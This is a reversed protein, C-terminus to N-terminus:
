SHLQWPLTEDQIVEGKRDAAEFHVNEPDITIKSAIYNNGSVGGDIYTTISPYAEAYEKEEDTSGDLFRCKHIHGSIEFRVGLDNLKDWIEKSLESEPESVQWAHSLAVVKENKIEVNKLWDAMERRNVAYDDMGGYEVHDDNKDEGSDLILFSYDGRNVTYYFKEYGLYDSLKNAFNGRTEHNGRVYIVPMEGRTLDGGFEVINRVAQEEFDLGASPDGMMLVADYKGLHSIAEKAEKLHSHWDSIVLYSQKESENVKLDYPGKTVTKGLRSGYSYEDIVRTSGVYYTNNKLQEYPVIISHILRDGIRRGDKQAYLKYSQGNHEFEVFATAKVNTAFVVSYSSGTDMVVPDSVISFPRFPLLSWLSGLVLCSAMLICFVTKIKGKLAPLVLLLLTPVAFFSLLPLDKKLYLFFVSGTESGSILLAAASFIIFILSFIFSIISLVRFAKKKRKEPIYIRLALLIVSLALLALIIFFLGMAGGLFAINPDYFVWVVRMAHFLAAAVSLFLASVALVPIKIFFSEKKM